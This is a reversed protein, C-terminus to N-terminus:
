NFTKLLLIVYYCRNIHPFCNYISSASLKLTMTRSVTITGFIYAGCIRRAILLQFDGQPLPFARSLVGEEWWPASGGHFSDGERRYSISQDRNKKFQHCICIRIAELVEADMTSFNRAELDVFAHKTDRLAEKLQNTIM